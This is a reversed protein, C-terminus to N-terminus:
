TRQTMKHAVNGVIQGPHWRSDQPILVPMVFHDHQNTSGYDQVERDKLGSAETVEDFERFLSLCM